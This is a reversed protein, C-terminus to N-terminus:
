YKRIVGIVVGWIETGEELKIQYEKNSEAQLFKRGDKEILRKLTFGSPLHALIIQGSKVEANKEVLVIDKPMIGAKEMSDGIVKVAFTNEPKNIIYKDLILIEKLSDEAPKQLGAPIAEKYFPIALSSFDSASRSKNNIFNNAEHAIAIIKGKNNKKLYGKKILATLHSFITNPSKLNLQINLDRVTPYYGEIQYFKAIKSLIQQQKATLRTSHNFTM